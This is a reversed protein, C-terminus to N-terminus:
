DSAKKGRVRDRTFLPVSSPMEGVPIEIVTPVNSELGEDVAARIDDLETCRVANAGFSRVLTVFDPNQFETAIIRGGYQHKQGRYVNGFHGDNFLLTVFPIDHQVATAIEQVNYMFGGDGIACIVPKDPQALKVGLATAFGYGLTGQYGPNMFTRPQYTPYANWGVYSIQTVDSVFIGDDPLAERILKLYSMQPEIKALKENFAGRLALMEEERSPRSQNHKALREVLAPVVDEALATLGVTPPRINTHAEPDVDIRVIKLDDDLGWRLQPMSLRTGIGVVVDAKAWLAPAAMLSHSLYHRSSVVGNGTRFSFVPAQLMEALRTVSESANMAGGGVFILPNKAAGLLKAAEEVADMDVPPRFPDEKVVIEGVEAVAALVDQGVELGVPLPIGSNLQRFAEGMKEGIQGPGAIREAWKTLSRLIGLQDPIEHLMGTNRSIMDTPIQGVLALVRSNLGYATALAATTNLFGPGPVVNYVGVQDKAWAYGLAMYATAQEHRTHIVRLHHRADYFANYLHDLQAGPLGFLTDVGHALLSSVIAEGGSMRSM